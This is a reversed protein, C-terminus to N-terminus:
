CEVQRDAQMACLLGLVCATCGVEEDGQQGSVVIVYAALIMLADSGRKRDASQRFAQSLLAVCSLGTLMLMILVLLIYALQSLLRTLASM